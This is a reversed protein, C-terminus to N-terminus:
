LLAHIVLYEDLLESIFLAVDQLPDGEQVVNAFALAVLRGTLVM